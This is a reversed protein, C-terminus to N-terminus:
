LIVDIPFFVNVEKLLDEVMQMEILYKDISITTTKKM